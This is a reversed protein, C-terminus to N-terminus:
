KRTVLEPIKECAMKTYENIEKIMNHYAKLGDLLEHEGVYKNVIENVDDTIDIEDKEIDVDEDLYRTITLNKFTYNIIYMVDNQKFEKSVEFDIKCEDEEDYGSEERIYITSKTDKSISIKVRLKVVDRTDNSFEVLKKFDDSEFFKGDVIENNNKYTINEVFGKTVKNIQFKEYLREIMSAQHSFRNSDLIKNDIYLKVKYLQGRVRDLRLVTYSHSSNKDDKDVLVMIDKTYYTFRLENYYEVLDLVDKHGNPLYVLDEVYAEFGIKKYIEILEALTLPKDSILRLTDDLIVKFKGIVDPRETPEPRFTRIIEDYETFLNTNISANFTSEIIDSVKDVNNDDLTQTIKNIPLRIKSLLQKVTIVNQNVEQKKDISIESLKELIM